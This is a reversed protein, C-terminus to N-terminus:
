EVASSNLLARLYKAGDEQKRLKKFMPDFIPSDDQITRDQVYMRRLRIKKDVCDLVDYASKEIGPQTPPNRSTM